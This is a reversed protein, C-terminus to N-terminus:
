RSSIVNMEVLKKPTQFLLIDRDAFAAGGENSPSCRPRIRQM